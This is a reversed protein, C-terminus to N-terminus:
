EYGVVMEVRRNQTRGEPTKNDAVPKTSGFGESSIRNEDIGKKNLYTKIAEARAKSLKLNEAEVGVNDTHGSIKLKLSKDDNMVKALQDLSPYSTKVIVSKGTEFQLNKFAMTIAKKVEEKIEPCGNKAVTGFVSPCLDDKDLVSDGDTDPWPCGKNEKPGAVDACADDKDATGDSDKDPCGGFEALGAVDPCQDESDIIKDGDKDPCGGFEALGAVDPCKDESDIIKDGDKDPCGGFEALGAIDPCKDESDIIKDGDKDPCGGFEALGAIDPCKDNSDPVKDGDKDPCGNFEAIGPEKPCKDASDDIGDNDSDPCGKTPWTGKQKKCLDEKNSVHDRDKDKLKRTIPVSLATYFNLDSITKKGMLPTLDNTGIVLPGLRLATGFHLNGHSNVSMPLFIAFWSNEYRPTLSFESLSRTKEPNRLYGPAFSATFNAYFGKWINYDAYINIRTPLSMNYKKNKTTSVDFISSLTDGFGQLGTTDFNEFSTSFVRELVLDNVNAYFRADLGRARDFRIYGLDTVAFGAKLMYKNKRPDTHEADGDMEYQYKEKKPRFEYVAGFDVGMGYRNRDTVEGSNQPIISLASSYGFNIDTDRISLTSDSTFRIDANNSYFYASALGQTLKFTGAAKLYHPGKNIIDRGYTVGYDAWAATQISLNKNQVDINYLDVLSQEWWAQRATIEDIGNANVMTRLKMNFGVAHQTKKGFTFIFSPLLGINLNQYVAKSKGNLREVVWNRNFDPDNFASDRDAFLANGKVGLYNNSFTQDLSFINMHFRYRSDVIEAPNFNLSYVGSYNDSHFGLNGQAEIQTFALISLITFLLKKM